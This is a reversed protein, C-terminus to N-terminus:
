SADEDVTITIRVKFGPLKFKLVGQNYESNDAYPEMLPHKANSIMQLVQFAKRELAVKLMGEIDREDM